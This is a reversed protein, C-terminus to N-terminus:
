TVPIKVSEVPDCATTPALFRYGRRPLTHIFRSNTPADDLVERIRRICWNLGQEFNFHTKEGWMHRQIELHTVLEEPRAILLALVKSQRPPSSLNFDVRTSVALRRM